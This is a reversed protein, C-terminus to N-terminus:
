RFRLGIVKVVWGVVLLGHSRVEQWREGAEGQRAPHVQCSVSFKESNDPTEPPAPPQGSCPAARLAPYSLVTSIGLAGLLVVSAAMVRAKFNGATKYGTSGRPGLLVGVIEAAQTCLWLCSRLVWAKM